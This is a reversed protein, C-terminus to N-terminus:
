GLDPPAPIPTVTTTGGDREAILKETADALKASADAMTHAGNELADVFPELSQFTAHIIIVMSVALIAVVILPYFKEWLSTREYKQKMRAQKLIMWELLNDPVPEIESVEVSETKWEGDKDKYTVSKNKKKENVFAQVFEGPAPSFFVAIEGKASPYLNEYLAAKTEQKLAKFKYKYTDSHPSTKVRSAKDMMIRMNGRRKVFILAKVPYKPAALIYLIIVVVGGVVVIFGILINWSMVVVGIIMGFIGLIWFPIM